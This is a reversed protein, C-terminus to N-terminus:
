SVLSIMTYKNPNAPRKIVKKKKIGRKKYEARLQDVSVLRNRLTTAKTAREKLNLTATKELYDQDFCQELQHNFLEENLQGRDLRRFYCKIVTRIRNVGIGLYRAIVAMSAVARIERTPTQTGFRLQLIRPFENENIKHRPM